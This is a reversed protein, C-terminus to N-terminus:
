RSKEPEGKDLIKLGHTDYDTLGKKEREDTSELIRNTNAQQL